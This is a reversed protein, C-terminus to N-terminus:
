RPEATSRSSYLKNSATPAKRLPVNTCLENGVESMLILFDDSCLGRIADQISCACTSSDIASRCAVNLGMATSMYRVAVYRALKAGRERGRRSEPRKPSALGDEIGKM